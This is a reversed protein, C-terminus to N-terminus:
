VNTLLQSRKLANIVGSRPLEARTELLFVSRQAVKWYEPVPPPCTMFVSPLDAIDDAFSTSFQFGFDVSLNRAPKFAAPLSMELSFPRYGRQPAVLINHHLVQKAIGRRMHAAAAPTSKVEGHQPDLEKLAGCGLLENQKWVTWFSINPPRLAELGLAHVSGALSLCILGIVRSIGFFGTITRTIHFKTL